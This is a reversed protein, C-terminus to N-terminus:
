FIVEWYGGHDPGIRIIKNKYKLKELNKKINRENIGVIVALKAASIRPNTKIEQLIKLENTNFSNGKDTDRDTDRDTNWNSYRGPDKVINKELDNYTDGDFGEYASSLRFQVITSDFELQYIPRTRNYEFWNTDIKELGSGINGSLKVMRFLKTIIPNRSISLDKNKLEEIPKPFGGPNFFEIRNNFVRIMSKAPSFYDAHMLMNVLAERIAELGPSLEQGFGESTLIFTVDVKNKLRNLCEFYYEWLNEHEDLRFTYRSQANSYSTGPIEILDIRFDPFYKEIIERKGFMLLGGFSCAGNEIIRLKSLFENENFRNYGAAPNFRSMYDRYRDLSNDSLSNRDTNQATESTKTGFTRDRYMSDIEEKTARMDSSGRRIFTNVPSNYYIPKKASVPIYFALVTKEGFLYKRQRTSFVVNFKGGRINTVFNQEIKEANKVGIIEFQKGIQKIGFILWGGNTNSFASM